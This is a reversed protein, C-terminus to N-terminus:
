QNRHGEEQAEIYLKEVEKLDKKHNLRRGILNIQKETITM